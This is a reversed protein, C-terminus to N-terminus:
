GRTAPTHASIERVVRFGIDAARRDADDAARSASRASAPPHFWGSGRVVRTKCDEPHAPAPDDGCSATWQWVDGVMDFLGFRNPPFSGVPSTYLWHDAGAAYPGCCVDAGMNARDRDAADGWPRATRSGARAAYEWEMEDPLRYAQGTRSSLWRAYAQADAWDVCVVPDDPGQGLSQGHFTPNRWDCHAATAAYGTADAFQMFESRTVDHIAVAFARDIRVRHPLSEGADRGIETPPSGFMFGGGPVITMVPCGDCDRFTSRPKASAAPDALLTLGLLLGLVPGALLRVLRFSLWAM